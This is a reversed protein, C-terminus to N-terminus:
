NCSMQGNWSEPFSGCKELMPFGKGHLHASIQPGFLLWPTDPSM